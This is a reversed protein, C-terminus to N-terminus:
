RLSLRTYTCPVGDLIGGHGDEGGSAGNRPGQQTRIMAPQMMAAMVLPMRVLKPSKVRGTVASRPMVRSVQPMAMAMWFRAQPM